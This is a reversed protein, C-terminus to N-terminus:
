KNVYKSLDFLYNDMIDLLLSRYPEYTTYEVSYKIGVLIARRINENKNKCNAYVWPIMSQFESLILCSIVKAAEERIEWDNSTALSTLKSLVAKSNSKYCFALIAKGIKQAKTTWFHIIYIALDLLLQIDIDHIKSIFSSVFRDTIPPLSYYFAEFCNNRILAIRLDDTCKRADIFHKQKRSNDILTNVKSCYFQIEESEVLDCFDLSNIIEDRIYNIETTSDCIVRLDVCPKRQKNYVLCQWFLGHGQTVVDNIQSSELIIGDYLPLSSDRGLISIYNENLVAHDGIQYRILPTGQHYLSTITLNGDIIEYIFDNPLTQLGEIGDKEAALCDFETSGYQNVINIGYKKQIAFKFNPAIPEGAVMALRLKNIQISPSQLLNYLKSPTIDLISPSFYNIASIVESNPLDGIPIAFVGLRKCAELTIEGYGNIGFPQIICVSDSQTVGAWTLFLCENHVSEEFDSITRFIVKPHSHTGSTMSVKYIPEDTKFDFPYDLLDQPYVIPLQELSKIQSINISHANYLRKYFATHNYAYNIIQFLKLSIM